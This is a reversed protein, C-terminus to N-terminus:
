MEELSPNHPNHCESCEEGQNHEEPDIGPIDSRGGVGPFGLSAHCRLCLARSKDIVLAEPDDPHNLAPGHCNECQITKHMSAMNEEYKETHCEECYAKGRYKVSVAKWEDISSARHYGYTFNEGNVGFDDPVMVDRFFLFLIVVVIVVYLPRFVHNKM